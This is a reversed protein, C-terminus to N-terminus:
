CPLTCLYISQCQPRMVSCFDTAAGGVGKKMQDRSLDSVTAKNLIIKKAIKQTKM